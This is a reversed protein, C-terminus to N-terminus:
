VLRELLTIQLSWFCKKFGLFSLLARNKKKTKRFGLIPLVHNLWFDGPGGSSPTKCHYVSVCVCLRVNCNSSQIPRPGIWHFDGNSVFCWLFLRLVFYNLCYVLHKYFRLTILLGPTPSDSMANIWETVWGKHVSNEHVWRIQMTAGSFKCPPTTSSTLPPDTILPGVWDLKRTFIGYSGLNIILIGCIASVSDKSHHPYYFWYYKYFLFQTFLLFFVNKRM